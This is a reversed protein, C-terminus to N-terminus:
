TDRVANCPDPSSSGPKLFLGPNIRCSCLSVVTATCVCLRVREGREPAQPIQSTVNCIAGMMVIGIPFTNHIHARRFVVFRLHKISEKAASSKNNEPDAPCKMALADTMQRESQLRRCTSSHVRGDSETGAYLDRSM